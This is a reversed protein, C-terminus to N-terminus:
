RSSDPTEKLIGRQICWDRMSPIVDSPSGTCRIPPGIQKNSKPGEVKSWESRGSKFIVGRKVLREIIERVYKSKNHYIDGGVLSVGEALTIKGERIVHNMIRLQKPSYSM